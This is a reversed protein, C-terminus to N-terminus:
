QANNGMNENQLHRVLGSSVAGATIDMGAGIIYLWGLYQKADNPLVRIKPGDGAADWETYSLAGTDYLTTSGTLGEFASTILKMQLTSTATTTISPTVATTLQCLVEIPEGEGKKVDTVDIVNTSTITDSASGALSQDESFMNQKDLWM